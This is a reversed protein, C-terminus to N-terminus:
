MPLGTRILEPESVLFDKLKRIHRNEEDIVRRLERRAEDNQLFSELMQYFLITDEEFEIFVAILERVQEIKGFDVEELSFSMNGLLKDLIEHGFADAVPNSVAADINEKMNLFFDAHQKEEDAMWGLLSAMRPNAAKDIADRYTQEGNREIRIAMDLIEEATFM